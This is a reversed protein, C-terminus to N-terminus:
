FMNDMIIVYIHSMGRRWVSAEILQEKVWVGNSIHSAGVSKPHSAVVAGKSHYTVRQSSQVKM